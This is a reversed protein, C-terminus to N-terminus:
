RSDCVAENEVRLIGTSPRKFRFGAKHEVRMAGSGGKGFVFVGFPLQNM